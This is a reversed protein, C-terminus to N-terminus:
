VNNKKNNKKCWDIIEKFSKEKYVEIKDLGSGGEEIITGGGVSYFLTELLIYCHKIKELFLIIIFFQSYGDTSGM